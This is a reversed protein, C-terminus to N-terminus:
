LRVAQGSHRRLGRAEQPVEREEVEGAVLQQPERLLQEGSPNVQVGPGEKGTVM